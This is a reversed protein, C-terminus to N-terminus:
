YHLKLNGFRIDIRTADCCFYNVVDDVQFKGLPVNVHEPVRIEGSPTQPPVDEDAGVGVANGGVVGVVEAGVFLQM